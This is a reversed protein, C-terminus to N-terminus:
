KSSGNIAHIGAIWGIDDYDFTQRPGQVAPDLITGDSTMVVCHGYDGIQGAISVRCIHVPAFMIPWPDRIVYRGGTIHRKNKLNFSLSHKQLWDLADYLGIPSNELDVFDKSVDIYNKGSVMALCAALCGMRHEQRVWRVTPAVEANM